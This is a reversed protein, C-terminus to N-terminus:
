AGGAGRDGGRKRQRAKHWLALGLRRTIANACCIRAVVPRNVRQLAV